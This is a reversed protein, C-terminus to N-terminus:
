IKTCCNILLFHQAHFIHPKLHAVLAERDQIGLYMSYSYVPASGSAPRSRGRERKKACVLIIVYCRKTPKKKVSKGDRLLERAIDNVLHNKGTGSQILILLSQKNLILQQTTLAIVKVKM